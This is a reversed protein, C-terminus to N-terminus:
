TKLDINQLLDLIKDIKSIDLTAISALQPQLKDIASLKTEILSTRVSLTEIKDHLIKINQDLTEVLLKLGSDQFQPFKLTPKPITSIIDEEGGQFFHKSPIGFLHCMSTLMVLSSGIVANINNLQQVCSEIGKTGSYAFPPPHVTVNQHRLGIYKKNFYVHPMSILPNPM